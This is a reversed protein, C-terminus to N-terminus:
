ASFSFTHHIGPQFEDCVIYATYIISSILRLPSGSPVLHRWVFEYFFLKDYVLNPPPKTALDHGVRAVGHVTAWWAGRNMPNQLCQLPNGNGEGHSRGLGPTSGPDGANCASSKGVSSHPFGLCPEPIDKLSVNCSWLFRM